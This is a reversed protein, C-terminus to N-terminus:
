HASVHSGNTPRPRTRSSSRSAARACAPRAAGPRRNGREAFYAVAAQGYHGSQRNQSEVVIPGDRGLKSGRGTQGGPAHRKLLPAPRASDRSRGLRVAAAARERLLAAEAPALYTSLTERPETTNPM